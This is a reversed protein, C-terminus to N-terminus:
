KCRKALPPSNTQSHIDYLAPGKHKRSRTADDSGHDEACTDYHNDSEDEYEEEEAYWNRAHDDAPSSSNDDDDDDDGDPSGSARRRRALGTSRGTTRSNPYRSAATPEERSSGASNDGDPATHSSSAAVASTKNSPAARDMHPRLNNDVIPEDNYGYGYFTKGYNKNKERPKDLNRDQKDNTDNLRRIEERDYRRDSTARQTEAEAAAAAAAREGYSPGSNARDRSQSIGVRAVQLEELLVNASGASVETNDHHAMVHVEFDNLEISLRHKLAEYSSIDMGYSKSESLRESRLTSLAATEVAELQRNREVASLAHAYLRDSQSPPGAMRQGMGKLKDELASDQVDSISSANHLAELQEEHLQLRPEDHPMTQKDKTSGFSHGRKANDLNAQARKMETEFATNLHQAQVASEQSNLSMQEYVETCNAPAPAIEDAHSHRAAQGQQHFHHTQQM